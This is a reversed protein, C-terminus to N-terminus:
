KVLGAEDEYIALVNELGEMKLTQRVVPSPAILAFRGGSRKLLKHMRVFVSIGSSDVMPVAALNIAIDNDEGSMLGQLQNRLKQEADGIRLDGTLDLINVKGVKRLTVDM